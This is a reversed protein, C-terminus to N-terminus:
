LRFFCHNGIVTVPTKDKAWVTTGKVAKTCYHNCGSTPDDDASTSALVERCLEVLAKVDSRDRTAPDILRKYQPDGHNWCSFQKPKLCVDTIDRGWWGPHDARNRIVWAVARRGVLPEGRAEAWVTLAMVQEPPLSTLM